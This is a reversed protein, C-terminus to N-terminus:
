GVFSLNQYYRGEFFGIEGWKLVGIKYYHEHM